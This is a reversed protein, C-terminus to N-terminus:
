CTCSDVEFVICQSHSPEHPLRLWNVALYNLAAQLGTCVEVIEFLARLRGAHIHICLVLHFM